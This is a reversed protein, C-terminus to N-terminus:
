LDEKHKKWKNLLKRTGQNSTVDLCTTGKKSRLDWPVGAVELFVKVTDTHRAENGWCARHLPSFGDQHIESPDIDRKDELLLELIEARGQFGAGHMVTYGQMEGISVDVAPEALLLRVMETRGRLVSMMVPTQGSEEDKLNIFSDLNDTNDSIIRRLAETNDDKIADFVENVLDCTSYKCSLIIVLVLYVCKGNIM